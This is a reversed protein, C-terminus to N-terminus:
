ANKLSFLRSSFLTRCRLFGEFVLMKFLYCYGSSLEISIFLLFFFLVLIISQHDELLVVSRNKMKMMMLPFSEISLKDYNFCSIMDRNQLELVGKV